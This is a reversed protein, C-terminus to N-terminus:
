ALWRRRMRASWVRVTDAGSKDSGTDVDTGRASVRSDARVRAGGARFMRAGEADLVNSKARGFADADVIESSAPGLAYTYVGNVARAGSNSLKLSSKSISDGRRCLATQLAHSRTLPPLYNSTKTPSSPFFLCSLPNLILQLSPTLANLFLFFPFSLHSSPPKSHQHISVHFKRQYLAV